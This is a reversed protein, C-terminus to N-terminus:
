SSSKHTHKKTSSHKHGMFFFLIAIAAGFGVIEAQYHVLKGWYATKAIAEALSVPLVPVILLAVFLGCFIAPLLNLLKRSGRMSHIQTVLTIVAPGLLLVLNIFIDSPKLHTSLHHADLSQAVSMANHSDFAYLVYGLCLSLFMAAGNVSLLYIIIAPGITM